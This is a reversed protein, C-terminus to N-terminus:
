KGFRALGQHNFLQPDLNVNVGIDNEERLPLTVTAMDIRDNGGVGGIRDQAVRPQLSLAALIAASFVTQDAGTDALFPARIWL